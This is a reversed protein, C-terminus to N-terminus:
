QSEIKLELFHIIKKAISEDVKQLAEKTRAGLHPSAIFNPLQLLPHNKNVPEKEFVDFAAAYIKNQQLHKELAQENVLGGRACNVLIAERKLQQLEKEAIINRTEKNLPTHLSLIDSQKLLKEKSVLAVDIKKAYAPDIYPDTAIVRMGMSKLTKAVLSGIRGLGIIGATKAYLEIGLRLGERWSGEKIKSLAQPSNRAAMLLLGISQEAASQISAEPTHIIEIGRKQAEELDIHDLGNGARAIALLRPAKGLMKTTVSTRTRVLLVQSEALKEFFSPDKEGDASEISLLSSASQLGKLGESSLGDAILVKFHPKQTKM